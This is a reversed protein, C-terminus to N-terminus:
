GLQYNTVTSRLAQRGVQTKPPKPVGTVTESSTTGKLVREQHPWCLYQTTAPYWCFVGSLFAWTVMKPAEQPLCMLIRCQTKDWLWPQQKWEDQDGTSTHRLMNPPNPCHGGFRGERGWTTRQKPKWCCHYTKKGWLKQDLVNQCLLVNSFYM